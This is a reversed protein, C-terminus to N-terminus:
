FVDSKIKTIDNLCKYSKKILFKVVGDSKTKQFVTYRVEYINYFM